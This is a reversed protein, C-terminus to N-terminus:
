FPIESSADKLFAEIEKQLKHNQILPGAEFALSKDIRVSRAGESDGLGSNADPSVRM